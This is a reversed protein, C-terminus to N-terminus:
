QLKSLIDKLHTEIIYEASDLTIGSPELELDHLKIANRKLESEINKIRDEISQKLDAFMIKYIDDIHKNMDDVQAISIISLLKEKIQEKM